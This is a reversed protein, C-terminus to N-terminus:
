CIFHPCLVNSAGTRYHSLCHRVQMAKAAAMIDAAVEEQLQAADELDMKNLAVVHPRACYEANYLALEQRVM